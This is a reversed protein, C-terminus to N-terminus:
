QSTGGSILRASLSPSQSRSGSGFSLSAVRCLSACTIGPVCDLRSLCSHILCPVQKWASEASSYKERAIASMSWSLADFACPKNAELTPPSIVPLAMRSANSSLKPSPAPSRTRTEQLRIRPRFRMTSSVIPRAPSIPSSGESALRIAPDAAVSGPQGPPATSVTPVRQLSQRGCPAESAGGILEYAGARQLFNLDVLGSHQKAVKGKEFAILTPIGRIGFRAAIAPEEDVNVKAFRARPELEKAAKDFIPAMTRCPGCWPAWFDVILPMDNREVHKDFTKATLAIPEGTFLNAKCAGCKAESAPRDAPIRNVASCHPCVVHISETM